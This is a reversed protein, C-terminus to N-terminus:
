GPIEVSRTRVLPERGRTVVQLRLVYEGAEVDPLDVRVSRFWPGTELPGPEEWGIHLPEDPGGGIGLWRGVRGLFGEGKRYLSLEFDVHEPRWGLGYIEWGVAIQQGSELVLSPRMLPLALDLHQPLPDVPDLIALDSLTALDDPITDARIGHRIRGGRGESPAWAEVSMLYEGAPVRLTLVAERGGRVRAERFRRAPDVLFLGVQDAVDSPEPWGWPGVRAPVKSSEPSALTREAESDSPDPLRTAVAVLISDGRHMVAVQALGPGLDSVYTAVHASRPHEDPLWEGPETRWPRELVLGPPVFERAEPLWHGVVSGEPRVFGADPRQREWGREWGYRLTLEELDSGWPIGHPNRARDSLMSFTWRAYHETERDNGPVLYLPDALDWFTARLAEWAEEGEESAAKMLELAKGDLLVEPHRWRRAEGPAMGALARGFAILAAEYDGAGHLAFGSLMECWFEPEVYCARALEVAEGWRGAEGLYFIRQGLIWRDGPIWRSLESLEALLMDRLEVVELPDPVPQWTDDGAHWMCFRGVREECPRRGESRVWPLLRRRRRELRAQADRARGLVDSSDPDVARPPKQVASLPTVETGVASAGGGPGFAITVAALVPPVILLQTVAPAVGERAPRSKRGPASTGEGALGRPPYPSSSCSHAAMIRTRSMTGVHVSSETLFWPRGGPGLFMAAMAEAPDSVRFTSLM